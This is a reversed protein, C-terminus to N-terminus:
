RFTKFCPYLREKDKGRGRGCKGERERWVKREVEGFM